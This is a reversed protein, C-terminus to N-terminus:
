VSIYYPPPTSVWITLALITQVQSWLNIGREQAKRGIPPLKPIKSWLPTAPTAISIGKPRKVNNPVRSPFRQYRRVQFFLVFWVFTTTLPYHRIFRLIQLFVQRDVWHTVSNMRHAKSPEGFIMFSLIIFIVVYRCTCTQETFHRTVFFYGASYWM